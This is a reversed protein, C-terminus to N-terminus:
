KHSKFKQLESAANEDLALFEKIFLSRGQARWLKPGDPISELEDRAIRRQEVLFLVVVEFDQSVRLNTLAQVVEATPKL